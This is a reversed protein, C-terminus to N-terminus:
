STRTMKSRALFHLIVISIALYIIMKLFGVPHYYLVRMVSMSFAFAILKMFMSSSDSIILTDLKKGVYVCLCGLIGVGILGANLYGITLIYMGGIYGYQSNVIFKGELGPSNVGFSDFLITPILRVVWNDFTLREFTSIGGDEIIQVMTPLTVFINSAGPIRAADNYDNTVVSSNFSLLGVDRVFEIMMLAFVAASFFLFSKFNLKIKLFIFLFFLIGVVESRRAQLLFYVALLCLTLVLYKKRQTTDSAIGAISVLIIFLQALMADLGGSRSENSLNQTYTSSIVTGSRELYYGTVLLCFILAHYAGDSFQLSRNKGANTQMDICGTMAMVLLASSCLQLVHSTLYLDRQLEINWGSYVPQGLILQGFIPGLMPYFIGLFTFSALSFIKNKSYFVAASAVMSLYYLYFAEEFFAAIVILFFSFMFILWNRLKLKIKM